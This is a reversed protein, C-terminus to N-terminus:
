AEAHNADLKYGPSQRQLPTYSVWPPRIDPLQHYMCTANLRDAAPFAPWKSCSDCGDVGTSARRCAHRMSCAIWVAAIARASWLAAGGFAFAVPMLLMHRVGPRFPFRALRYILGERGALLSPLGAPACLAPPCTALSHRCTSATPATCRQWVVPRAMSQVAAHVRAPNVCWLHGAACREPPRCAAALHRIRRPIPCVCCREVCFHTRLLCPIGGCALEAEAEARRPWPPSHARQHMGSLTFVHSWVVSPRSPRRTAYLPGWLLIGRKGTWSVAAASDVAKGLLLMNLVHVTYAAEMGHLAQLCAHSTASPAPRLRDDSKSAGAACIYGDM